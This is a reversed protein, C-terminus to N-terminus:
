QRARRWDRRLDVAHAVGAAALWLVVAPGGGGAARLALLLCLGPLLKAAVDRPGLGAGTRRHLLLLAVAELALVALVLDVVLPAGPM